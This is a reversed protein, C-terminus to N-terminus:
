DTCKKLLYAPTYLAKLILESPGSQHILHGSTGLDRPNFGCSLCASEGDGLPISFPSFTVRDGEAAPQM